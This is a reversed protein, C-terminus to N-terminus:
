TVELKEASGLYIKAVGVAEEMKKAGKNFFLAMGVGNKEDV